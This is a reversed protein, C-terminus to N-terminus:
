ASVEIIIFASLAVTSALRLFEADFLAGPLYIALVLAHFLKRLITLSMRSNRFEWVIFIGVVSCAAWYFLLCFFLQQYFWCVGFDQGPELEPYLIIM